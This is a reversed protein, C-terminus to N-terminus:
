GGTIRDFMVFGRQWYLEFSLLLHKLSDNHTLAECIARCGSSTIVNHSLDLTRLCTNRVLFYTLIRADTSWLKCHSMRLTRVTKNGALAHSLADLEERTPHQYSLDIETSKYRGSRLRSCLWFINVKSSPVQQHLHGIFDGRGRIDPSDRIPDWAIADEASSELSGRPTHFTPSDMYAM